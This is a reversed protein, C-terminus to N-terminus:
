PGTNRSPGEYGLSKGHKAFYAYEDEGSSGKDPGRLRLYRRWLPARRVLGGGLGPARNGALLWYVGYGLAGFGLPSSEFFRASGSEPRCHSM